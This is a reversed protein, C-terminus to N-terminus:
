HPCFLGRSVKVLSAEDSLDGQVVRANGRDVLAKAQKSSPDRTLAVVQFKGQKLLADVVSGGQQGTAGVVAISASMIAIIPQKRLLQTQTVQKAM